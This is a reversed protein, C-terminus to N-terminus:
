PQLSESSRSTLHDKQLYPQIDQKLWEAILAYQSTHAQIWAALVLEM